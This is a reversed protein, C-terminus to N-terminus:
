LARWLAPDPRFTVRLADARVAAATVVCRRLGSPLRVARREGAVDVLLDDGRRAVDVDARRVGPLSLVLVYDDGEREVSPGADAVVAAAAPLEGDDLEAALEALEHPTVPGAPREAARLLPLPALLEAADALVGAEARARAARWPDDGDGPVLRPVVVADVRVGHLALATRGSAVAELAAPQPALVLRAATGPAALVQGAGALEADLREVAEVLGRAPGAAGTGPRAGHGMAWLMRREVPLLREVAHGLAAPLAALRVAADIGPADAVVLDRGSTAADRLELLAAIEDVLPLLPFEREDVEDVGLAGALDALPAALASRARRVRDRPGAPRVSLGPEVEGDAGGQLPGPQDGLALLLTKVGRRAAHLATAAAVTTTGAGGTGTFLLLRM